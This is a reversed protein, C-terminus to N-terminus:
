DPPANNDNTIFLRELWICHSHTSSNWARTVRTSDAAVFALIEAAEERVIHYAEKLLKITNVYNIHIMDKVDVLSPGSRNKQAISKHYPSFRFSRRLEAENLDTQSLLYKM